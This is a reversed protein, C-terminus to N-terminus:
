NNLAVSLQKGLKTLEEVSLEKWKDPMEVDAELDEAKLLLEEIRAVLKEASVAKQQPSSTTTPRSVPSETELISNLSKRLQQMGNQTFNRREADYEAWVQPLSYLYRGLGFASCARKFAQAVATPFAAVDDQAFEGVDERVVGHICLRCIIGKDGLQRYEVSWNEAGMLNDLRDEYIRKDVYALGIAKTKDKTTAGPRFEVDAPRFPARLVIFDM